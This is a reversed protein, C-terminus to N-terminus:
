KFLQVNKDFSYEGDPWMYRPYHYSNSEILEIIKPLKQKLKSRTKIFLEDHAVDIQSGLYAATALYFFEVVKCEADCTPDDYYYFGNKEASKWTLFLKSRDEPVESFARPFAHVWGSTFILHHIEEQSADRGRKPATEAAALDQGLRDDLGKEISIFQFVNFGKASMLLVPRNESLSPNLRIEDIKGDQNNDLWQATVNAAHRVKEEPVDKTICITVLDFVIAGMKLFKAPCENAVVPTSLMMLMAILTTRM